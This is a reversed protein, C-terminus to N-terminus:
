FNNSYIEIYKIIFIFFCRIKWVVKKKVNDQGWCEQCKEIMRSIVDFGFLGFIVM